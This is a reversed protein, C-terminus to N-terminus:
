AKDGESIVQTVYPNLFGLTVPAPNKEAELAFVALEYAERLDPDSIGATVWAVLRHDVGYIPAKKGRGAELKRLRAAIVEARSPESTERDKVPDAHEVTAPVGVIGETSSAQQDIPADTGDGDDAPLRWVWGSRFATRTKQVGLAIAARQMTRAHINDGEGAALIDSANRAGSKLLDAVLTCAIDAQSTM